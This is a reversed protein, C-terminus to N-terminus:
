VLTRMNFYKYVTTRRINLSACIDKIPVKGFMEKVAIVKPDTPLRKKRGGVRGKKRAAELGILTREVLLKREFNALTAFVNLVLEGTASSTDIIGEKLSKFHVGKEKLQNVLSLLTTTTRGLRDLRYVVLTDGSKLNKLCEDLGPKENHAGCTKDSYINHRMCGAKLLEEIQLSLNQEKKSVRAYGILRDKEIEREQFNEQVSEEKKRFLEIIKSSMRVEDTKVLILHFFTFEIDHIRKIFM